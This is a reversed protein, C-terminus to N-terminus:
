VTFRTVSGTQTASRSFMEIRFSKFSKTIKIKRLVNSQRIQDKVKFPSIQFRM